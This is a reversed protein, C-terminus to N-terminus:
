NQPVLSLLFSKLSVDVQSVWTAVQEDDMALTCLAGEKRQLSTLYQSTISSNPRSMPKTAFTIISIIESNCRHLFGMNRATRRGDGLVLLAM